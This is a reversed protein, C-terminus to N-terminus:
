ILTGATLGAHVIRAARAAYPGAARCLWFLESWLAPHLMARGPRLWERSLTRQPTDLVVRVTAVRFTRVALLGTEMDAAVFGRAAWYDRAQGTILTPATLLPGMEPQFGRTRAAQELASVLEADCRMTSGDPVGVMEPILVTGPSLDPTLAGALGCIVVIAGNDDPAGHWRSLRMGAHVLCHDSICRRAAWYELFTPALVYINVGDGYPIDSHAEVTSASANDPRM